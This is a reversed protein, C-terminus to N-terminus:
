AVIRQKCYNGKNRNYHLLTLPVGYKFCAKCVTATCCSLGTVYVFLEKGSGRLEGFSPDRILLGNELLFRDMNREMKRFEFIENDPVEKFIYRDVPIGEHRGGILAVIVASKKKLSHLQSKASSRKRSKGM